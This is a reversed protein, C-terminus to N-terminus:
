EELLPVAPPPSSTSADAAIQRERTLTPASKIGATVDAEPVGDRNRAHLQRSLTWDLTPSGRPADVRYVWAVLGTESQEFRPAHPQAFRAIEHDPSKTIESRTIHHHLPRDPSGAIV